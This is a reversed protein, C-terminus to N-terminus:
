GPEKAVAKIEILLNPHPLQKVAVTTRAPGTQANFYENYVRNMGAYDAIDVLFVTLDILDKLDAGAANLIARINEIVARTQEQIDREITGDDHIRVGVHTNDPRRSSVGSVYIFGNAKRAHPYNALAGARDDLIYATSSMEVDDLIQSTQLYCVVKSGEGPTFATAICREGRTEGRWTGMDGQRRTEKDGGRRTERDGQRGTEKDGQGRTERDWM